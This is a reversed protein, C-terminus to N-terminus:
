LTSLRVLAPTQTPLPHLKSHLTARLSRHPPLLPCLRCRNATAKVGGGVLGRPLQLQDSLNVVVLQVPEEAQQQLQHHPRLEEHQRERELPGLRAQPSPRSRSPTSRTPEYDYLCDDDRKLRERSQRSLRSPIISSSCGSTFTM